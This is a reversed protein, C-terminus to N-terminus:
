NDNLREKMKKLMEAVELFHRGTKSFEKKNTDETVSGDDWLVDCVESQIYTVVGKYGAKDVVEDGIHIKDRQKVWAEYKAKAEQYTNNTFISRIEWIGVGFIEKCHKQISGVNCDSPCIIASALEWAKEQADEIAKRDPENYSEADLIVECSLNDDYFKLKLTHLIEDYSYDQNPVDIIYKM